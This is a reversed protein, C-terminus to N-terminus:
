PFELEAEPKVANVDFKPKRVIKRTMLLRLGTMVANMTIGKKRPSYQTLVDPLEKNIVKVEKKKDDFYLINKFDVKCAMQIRYYFLLVM